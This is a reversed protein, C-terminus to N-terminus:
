NADFYITREARVGCVMATTRFLYTAGVTLGTVVYSLGNYNDVVTVWSPSTSSLASELLYTVDESGGTFSVPIWNVQVSASGSEIDLDSFSPKLM